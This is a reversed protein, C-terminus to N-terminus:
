LKSQFARELLELKDGEFLKKSKINVYLNQLSPRKDKIRRGPVAKIFNDVLSDFIQKPTPKDGYDTYDRIIVKLKGALAQNFIDTDPDLQSLDMRKLYDYQTLKVRSAYLQKFKDLDPTANLVKYMEIIKEDSFDQESSKGLVIEPKDSKAWNPVYLKILRILKQNLSLDPEQAKIIEANTVLGQTRSLSASKLWMQRQEEKTQEDMLAFNGEEDTFFDKDKQQLVFKVMAGCKPCHIHKGIPLNLLIPKGNKDYGDVPSIGPAYDITVKGESSAFIHFCKKCEYLPEDLEDYNFNDALLTWEFDRDPLGLNTAVGAFDIIKARKGPKYRLVRMAFQFYLAISKTPRAILAVSANPLDIGETFIQVNSIIQIKGDRYDQLMEARYDDDSAGDLHVTKIGAKNFAQTIKESQEITSAYIIGQENNGFKNYMDIMEHVNVKNAQEAVSKITYDGNGKNTKLKDKDFLSNAYYDFPALKKNEILWKVTPGLVMDSNDALEEFGKGDGRWPTATIYLHYAKPFETLINLYTDAAAHHAEDVMILDPKKIRDLHRTLTQVMGVQVREMDVGQRILTNKIQQVIEVKHVFILVNGNHETFKRAIEAMMLTKGSGPPSVLFSSQRNSKALTQLVQFILKQQYDYPKLPVVKDDSM